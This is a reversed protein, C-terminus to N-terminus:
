RFKHYFMVCIYHMDSILSLSHHRESQILDPYGGIKHESINWVCLEIVSCNGGRIVCEGYFLRNESGGVPKM